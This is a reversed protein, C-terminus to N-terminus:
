VIMKMWERLPIRCGAANAHGGGGYKAALKSVDFNGVSRLSLQAYRGDRESEGAYWVIGFEGEKALINGIDSQFNANNICPIDDFGCFSIRMRTSSGDVARQIKAADAKAIFAGIEMAEALSLGTVDEYADFSPETSLLLAAVDENRHLKKTWLDRDETYLVWWPAQLDPNYHKWALGAGSHTMDFHCFDLHGFERQNSIHHDIVKFSNAARFWKFLAEKDLCTDFIVVDCGSVDIDPTSKPNIPVFEVQNLLGLERYHRYAIYASCFGDNCNAHFGVIIRSMTSLRETPLTLDQM